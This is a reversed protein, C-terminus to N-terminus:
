KSGESESPRSTLCMRCSPSREFVLDGCGTCIWDGPKMGLRKAQGQAAYCITCTDFRSFNLSHCRQCHWDGPWWPKNKPCHTPYYPKWQQPHQDVWYERDSENHQYRHLDDWVSAFPVANSNLRFSPAATEKSDDTVFLSANQKYNALGTDPLIDGEEVGKMFEQLLDYDEFAEDDVDRDRYALFRWWVSRHGRSRGMWEKVKAAVNDRDDPGTSNSDVGGTESM